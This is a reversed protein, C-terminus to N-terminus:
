SVHRRMSPLGSKSDTPCVLLKFNNCMVVYASMKSFYNVSGLASSLVQSQAPFANPLPSSQFLPSCLNQPLWELYILRHYGEHQDAKSHGRQLDGTLKANAMCSSRSRRSSGTSRRVTVNQADDDSPESVRV